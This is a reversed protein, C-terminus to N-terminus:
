QEYNLLEARVDKLDDSLGLVKGQLAGKDVALTNALNVQEEHKSSSVCGATIFLVVSLSLGIKRM